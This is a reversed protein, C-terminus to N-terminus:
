AGKHVVWLFNMLHTRYRRFAANVNTYGERRCALEAVEQEHLWQAEAVRQERTFQEAQIRALMRPSLVSAMLTGAVGPVAVAM